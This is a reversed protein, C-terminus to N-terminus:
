DPSAISDGGPPESSTRFSAHCSGCANPQDTGPQIEVVEFSHDTNDGAIRRGDADDFWTGSKATKTMHCSTCRGVPGDGLEYNVPIHSETPAYPAFPMGAEQGSHAKVAQEILALASDQETATPAMAVGNLDVTGGNSTHNVAVNELTLTAFPGHTAHCSLCRANSMLAQDNSGFDYEDGTGNDTNSFHYPGGKGSHPSHCDYCTVKEYPNDIHASNAYSNFQQRHKSPYGTPWRGPKQLFYGDPQDVADWTLNHLGAIFNGDFDTVDSRWPFGFAGEVPDSGRNHCAGCLETAATATMHNPNMIFNPDAGNSVHSSGPGHCKECGIRYDVAEYETVLGNVTELTIGAEHCGSCKKAYSRGQTFWNDNHYAVWDGTRQNFQIPMILMDECTQTTDWTVFDPKPPKVFGSSPDTDPYPNTTSCTALDGINFMYRQKWAGHIDTAEGRDNLATIEGAQTGPGGYTAYVPVITDEILDPGDDDLDVLFDYSLDPTNNCTRIYTDHSPTLGPDESPDNALVGTDFWASCTGAGPDAPFSNPDMEVLSREIVRFHGSGMWANALGGSHCILCVDSGMFNADSEPGGSLTMSLVDGPRVSHRTDGALLNSGAPPAVSLFASVVSDIAFAGTADTTVDASGPASVVAGEVPTGDPALILGSVMGPIGSVTFSVDTTLSAAVNVATETASVSTGGVVATVDYVGIPIDALVAVGTADTDVSVTDPETTVTAGAVAGGSSTVTVSITGTSVGDQGDAGPPGAPGTAGDNGECGVMLFAAAVWLLLRESRTGM